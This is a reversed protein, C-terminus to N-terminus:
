PNAIGHSVMQGPFWILRPFGNGIKSVRYRTAATCLDVTYAIGHAQYTYHRYRAPAFLPFRVRVKVIAVHREVM